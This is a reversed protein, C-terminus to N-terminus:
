NCKVVPVAEAGLIHATFNICSTGSTFGTLNDLVQKEQFFLAKFWKIKFFFHM